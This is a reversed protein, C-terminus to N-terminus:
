RYLLYPKVAARFAVTAPIERDLVADPDDGRLLAERVRSAGFRDDFAGSRIRLSDGSTKAIAWLLAAGIRSANARERDTVVIRVGAISRGAYKGDTPSQPTFREAEFRVGPMLRDALLDAVEKAKLWPAGVRQFAIDTGRGVSVNTAEFAV